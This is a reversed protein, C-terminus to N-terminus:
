RLCLAWLHTHLPLPPHADHRLGDQYQILVVFLVFLNLHDCISLDIVTAGGAETSKELRCM